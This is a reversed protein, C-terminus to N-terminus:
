SLALSLFKKLPQNNTKLGFSPKTSHAVTHTLLTTMSININDAEHNLQDYRAYFDDCNEVKEQQCLECSCDFDWSEKIIEQRVKYNKMYADQSFFYIFTKIRDLSMELFPCIVEIFLIWIGTGCLRM